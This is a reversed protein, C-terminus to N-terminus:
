CRLSKRPPKGERPHERGAQRERELWRERRGGLILRLKSLPGAAAGAAAKLESLFKFCPQLLYDAKHLDLLRGIQLARASLAKLPLIQM